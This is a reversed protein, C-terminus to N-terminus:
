SCNLLANCQPTTHHWLADPKFLGQCRFLLWILNYTMQTLSKHLLLMEVQYHQFCRLITKRIHGFMCYAESFNCNNTIVINDKLYDIPM